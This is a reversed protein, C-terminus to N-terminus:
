KRLLAIQGTHYLTHQIIGQLQFYITYAGGTLNDSLRADPLQKFTDELLIQNNELIQLTEKWAQPGKKKLAPWDQEDTLNLKEGEIRRRAADLWANVHLVIEWISHANLLPKSAAKVASVGSLVDKLSPGHWADGWYSRRLQDHLRAVETM